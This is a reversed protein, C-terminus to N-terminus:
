DTIKLVQRQIMLIDQVNIGNGKDQVDSNKLGQETVSYNKSNILYCKLLVTDAIDVIGDCNADGALGNSDTPKTTVVPTTTAPQTPTTSQPTDSIPYSKLDPLEDLTICYESNYMEILNEVPNNQESTLYNMYWPCFYLWAAKDNLLNELSPITDNESMAVIKEGETSQVLSYFTSALSSLNPLGDKANYKDYTVMDVVDDGPYWAASNPSTSSTWQWILNNLGHENTLKDYLLRYLKKCNEPGEAGWWFWAGEAEHLPRWLIPVDAAQLKKLQEAIYDIDALLVENEWTGEELAKSISFTTFTPNASEVYFAAETSGKELPVSWHWSVSAIGGYENVWEITREPADDRWTTTTNYTLFDLGRIAPQKGTHELLYEFEAENDKIYTDPDNWQNYNHSGCYEQQGSIIHKGYVDCLYNYLRKTSESADPNSLQRTPSLTSYKKDAPKITLYDFNTYGWYGEFEITNKGKNLVVIGAPTETFTTNYTFTVEGQNVGNINLYQVKKNKDYPQCYCISLDYLGAEAVDVEVSVTTGKQDLYAFGGGSANTLDYEDGSGDEATNGIWTENYIKGGDTKGDEFEVKIIGDDTASTQVTNDLTCAPVTLAAALVACLGKKLIKSKM